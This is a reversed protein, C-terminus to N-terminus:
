QTLRNLQRTAMAKVYAGPRKMGFYYCAIFVNLPYIYERQPVLRELWYRKIDKAPILLFLKDIDDVDLHLMVMEVLTADSLRKIQSADYSWFCHQKKLRVLLDHRIQDEKTKQRVRRSSPRSASIHAENNM